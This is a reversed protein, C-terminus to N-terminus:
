RGFWRRLTRHLEGRPQGAPDAAEEVHSKWSGDENVMESPERDVAGGLASATLVPNGAVGVGLTAHSEQWVRGSERATEASGTPDKEENSM